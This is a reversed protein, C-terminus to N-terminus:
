VSSGAVYGSTWCLQLSYGGSPRNIHLLDGTIYLNPIIKSRFTATDLETLPVGGDAVVAKDFGLLGTIEVTLNKLLQVFKKRDERSFSHVKVTPISSRNEIYTLGTHNIIERTLATPLLDALANDIDKNKHMEFLAIIKKDLEGLDSRPFLDIRATVEGEKLLEAVKGAANLITPGSLGFHTCLIDGERAFKKVGDVYFTIKAGKLATGSLRKVMSETECNGVALPVITPTPAVVTHGLERLWGFGDGTSGTEPHSLGGTALVYTQGIYVTGGFDVGTIKTRNQSDGTFQLRAAKSTEIEVANRVCWERLVKVVDSAKNSKPFARKRAEVVIPLKLEQEFFDHTAQMGFEAFPTHLFKASEGYHSLLVRVDDEANLINCRGGGSISLKKGVEINKELLLVRKGRQAARGAAMLGSAGAGIVILDYTQLKTSM